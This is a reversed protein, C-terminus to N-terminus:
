NNNTLTAPFLMEFQTIGNASAVAVDGKHSKVISKTIALGLGAGERGRQRPSAIRYFREFLRPLHEPPITEGPNTVALRVTGPEIRGISVEISGRSPTHQIANAILNSIARRIMLKEGEIVANGSLTLTVGQEEALAEYFGFLERTEQALDIVESRPVMLGNDTKALYLMDSITRALRGHEELSSYLAERYEEPSRAQSLAVQTQTMLNGIPTRLEHALDSSFHSLRKFSEELRALMANFSEALSTLEIPVSDVSLRDHLRSASIGQAVAAMELVPALGRRAAIGGLLVVIVAASVVAAWVIKQFSKAFEQQSDIKVALAVTVPPMSPGGMRAGTIIGRYTHGSYEWVVPRPTKAATNLASINLFAPPYGPGTTAFLTTGDRDVIAVFIRRRGVLADGLRQALGAVEAPVAIKALTYRILEINSTIEDIDNKEFRANVLVSILIGIGVLVVTSGTGFFLALRLAISKSRFLM